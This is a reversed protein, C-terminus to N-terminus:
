IHHCTTFFKLFFYSSLFSVVKMVPDGGYSIINKVFNLKGHLAAAMLMSIRNKSHQYNVSLKGIGVLKLFEIFASESGEFWARSVLLDMNSSVMKSSAVEMFDSSMLLDELFYESFPVLPQSHIHIISNVQFYEALRSTNIDASLLILKLNQFLSSTRVHILLTAKLIDTFRDREHAQDFVLHTIRLLCNLNNMLSQLFVRKSCFTLHYTQSKSSISAETQHAIFKEFKGGTMLYIHM